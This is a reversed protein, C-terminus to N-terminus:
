ISNAKGKHSGHLNHKFFILNHVIYNVQKLKKAEERGYKISDLKM